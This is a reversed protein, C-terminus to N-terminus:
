DAVPRLVITRIDMVAAGKKVQPKVALRHSGAKLNMTGINEVIMNQFHGTERVTWEISEGGVELRVVSGGNNTGCGCQVEIEYKGDKPITLDWDAWDDVETWYGLVNKYTEPEYRLKKGHPTGKAATLAIESNAEKLLPKKGAVVRNMETRWAKWKGAVAEAGGSSDLRTPDSDIYLRKHVEPKANPNPLGFQVGTKRQWQHLSEVLSAAKDPFDKAINSKEGVDKELDYLEAAGDELYEILKWNGQRIAAAPRSGQNTYHPFHWFFSRDSKRGELNAALWSPKLSVGDLPGVTKSTDLGVVDMLTPMLDMLSVPGDVTQGAGIKGSWRVILPVRLGGEYLYGKGARFPGNHTVPLEHVEPVHLGGNDSSFIVITPRKLTDVSNLLKGIAKDLSEVTAAYLPNFAKANKEILDSPAALAVHPSHQPIYCFSPKDEQSKLFEMAADVIAYENKGGEKEDIAGNGKPEVSVDFGQEKPGTKGGGLHWKGFLGTRYGAGRLVEAMTWEALPLHSQIRPHLLLQSEADPRGPLFTTLHLRACSKGTMLSARSASCISLGCYASTYRIGQSALKDLNPTNHDRRGYCGLDNIGLDDAVILVINPYETSDTAKALANFVSASMFAVIFVIQRLLSTNAVQM